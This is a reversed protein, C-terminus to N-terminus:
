PGLTQRRVSTTTTRHGSNSVRSALERGRSAYPDDISLERSQSTPQSHHGPRTKRWVRIHASPSFSNHCTPVLYSESLLIVIANLCCLTSSDLDEAWATNPIDQSAFIHHARLPQAFSGAMVLRVHLRSKWSDHNAREGSKARDYITLEPFM